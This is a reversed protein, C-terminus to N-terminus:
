PSTFFLESSRALSWSDLFLEFYVLNNQVKISSIFVTLLFSSSWNLKSIRISNKVKAHFCFLGQSSFGQLEPWYKKWKMTPLNVRHLFFWHVRQRKLCCQYLNRGTCMWREYLTLQQAKNWLLNIEAIHNEHNSKM